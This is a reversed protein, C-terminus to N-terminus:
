RAELYVTDASLDQDNPWSIFYGGNKVQAFYNPNKLEQFVGKELYPTLNFTKMEGNEFVVSLKHDALIKLRKIKLM